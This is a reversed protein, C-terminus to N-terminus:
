GMLGSAANRTFVLADVRTYPRGRLDIIECGKAEVEDRRALLEAAAAEDLVYIVDGGAAAASQGYSIPM